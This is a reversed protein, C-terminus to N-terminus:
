SEEAEIIECDKSLGFMESLEERKEKSYKEWRLPLVESFFSRVDSDKAIWGVQGNKQAIEVLEDIEPATLLHIFAMLKAIAFHTSAFSGSGALSNIADRREIDTAVKIDPFHAAIFAGLETHLYLKGGNESAWEKALVPHPKTADISSSFDGDKSVVHMDTNEPATSLLMEWNLRDGFSGAKGPPDNRETRLRAALLEEQDEEIPSEVNKIAAFLKDAPFEEALADAKAKVVLDNHLKKLDKVSKSYLGGKSYHSMLRPLGPLSLKGFEGLAQLIKAERNRDFERCAQLTLYLEIKKNKILGVLKKLEEIDDNTYAFFSLFINTDIFVHIAAM